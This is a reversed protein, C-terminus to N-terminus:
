LRSNVEYVVHLAGGLCEAIWVIQNLKGTGKDRADGVDDLLLVVVVVVVLM